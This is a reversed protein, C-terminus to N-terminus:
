YHTINWQSPCRYWAKAFREDQYGTCFRISQFYITHESGVLCIYMGVQPLQQDSGKLLSISKQFFVRFESKENTTTLDLTTLADAYENCRQRSFTFAVVPLKDEKQLMNILSLWVNKDQNNLFVVKLLLTATFICKILVQKPNASFKTKPGFNLVGKSARGRKAEM